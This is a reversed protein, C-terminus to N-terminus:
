PDGCQEPRRGVAGRIEPGDERIVESRPEPNQPTVDVDVGNRGEGGAARLDVEEFPLDGLLESNSEFAMRPELGDAIVGGPSRIVVGPIARGRFCGEDPHGVKKADLALL